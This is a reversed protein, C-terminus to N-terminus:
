PRARSSGSRLPGRSRRPPAASSGRPLSAPPPRLPRPPARPSRRSSPLLLPPPPHCPLRCATRLPLRCATRSPLRCATRCLPLCALNALGLHDHTEAIRALLVLSRTVVGPEHRHVKEGRLEPAEGSPAALSRHEAALAAGAPVVYRHRLRLGVHIAAPLRQALQDPFAPNGRFDQDHEVVHVQREARDTKAGRAARASMLPQLRDECLHPRGLKRPQPDPDSGGGTRGIKRVVHQRAKLVLLALLEGLRELSGRAGGVVRSRVAQGLCHVTPVSESQVRNLLSVKM